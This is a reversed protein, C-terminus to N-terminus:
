EIKNSRYKYAKIARPSIRSTAPNKIDGYNNCGSDHTTRWNWSALHTKRRPLLRSTYSHARTLTQRARCSKFRPWRKPSSFLVVM